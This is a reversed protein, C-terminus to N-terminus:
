NGFISDMVGEVAKDIASDTEKELRKEIKNSQQRKQQKAEGTVADAISGFLGGGKDGNANAGTNARAAVTGSAAAGLKGFNPIQMPEAPLEFASAPPADHSISALALTHGSESKYRLLGLGRGRLEHAMPTGGSGFSSGFRSWAQTMEVVLPNDSLVLQGSSTTGDSYVVHIEYVEGSIGAVTVVRGTANLESSKVQKKSMGAMDFNGAGQFARPMSSLAIVRARGGAQTVMFVEGDRMLMYGGRQGFQMRVAGDRWAYDISLTGSGPTRIQYTASGAAWVAGCCLLGIGTILIRYM